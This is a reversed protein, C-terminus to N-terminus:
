LPLGVKTNRLIKSVKQLSIQKYEISEKELAILASKTFGPAVLIGRVHRGTSMSLRDIYRKLQYVADVGATDKKVEILVYNGNNDIMLLDAFGATGLKVEEEIPKFEEGLVELPYAMIARKIDDEDGWMDFKATDELKFTYLGLVRYAYIKLEESPKPRVASIVLRNSEARVSLISGEPQYNVPTSGYPRHVITTGDGKILVIREGRGLKSSARGSYEVECDAVLIITERQNFSERLKVAAEQISLGQTQNKSM